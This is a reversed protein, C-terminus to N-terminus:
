FSKPLFKVAILNPRGLNNSCFLTRQYQRFMLSQFTFLLSDLLWRLANVPCNCYMEKDRLLFPFMKEPFFITNRMCDADCQQRRSCFFAYAEKETLGRPLFFNSSKKRLFLSIPVVININHDRNNIHDYKSWRM